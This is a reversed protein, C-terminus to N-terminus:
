KLAAVIAATNFRMMDLYSAAPGDPASLGGTYVFVLAIGSDEALREALTPNAAIGVFIASVKLERLTDQLRAFEQAAPEALTSFGPVVAGALEFGYRQGFYGFVAHDSVLVRQGAPIQQVQEFIWADLEALQSQYAAANAAFLSANPPDLESLAAAINSAWVMVNTPDFWVHPDNVEQGAHDPDEGHEDGAALLPLGASVSVIAAQGANELLTDLFVELGAGSIFVTDAANVKAIDAPRPEFTHPDGNAPLLVTLEIAEGGIISVVDAVISTTAVIQLKASNQPPSSSTCAALMVVLLWLYLIKGFRNV